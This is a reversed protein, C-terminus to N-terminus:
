IAPVHTVNLSELSGRDPLDDDTIGLDISYNEQIKFLQQIPVNRYQRHGNSKKSLQIGYIRLRRCVGGAQWRNFLESERERARELIQRSTPEERNRVFILLEELLIEDCEPVRDDQNMELNTLAHKHVLSHLGIAGHKNELWSALSLLPQWLEFDRSNIGECVSSDSAIELWEQSNEIALVYLDDRLRQWAVDCSNIRRSPKVSDSSARFMMIPICRSALTSDLGNICALAKPGYVDYYETKYGGDATPEMRTSKGGQKYGCLLMSRLEATDPTNQRLREAEDYLLTGGCNHLTRFLAPGTISSSTLPRFVVRSLVEFVRTKGSNFQGGLYLYPVADWAQYAYTLITWLSLTAITGAAVPKPFDVFYEVQKCLSKFLTLPDLSSKGDLWLQRSASSWSSNNQIQPTSPKPNVWLKSGDSIEIFDDLEVVERRGDKHKLYTLWSPIPKGLGARQLVSVTLGNVNSTIFQEPRIIASCDFEKVQQDSEAKDETRDVLRLLEADIDEENTAPVLNLLDNRFRNRSQASRPDINDAHILQGDKKVIITVKTGNRELNFFLQGQKLSDSM